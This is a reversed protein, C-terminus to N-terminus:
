RVHGRLDKHVDGKGGLIFAAKLAFVPVLGVVTDRVFQISRNRTTTVRAIRRGQRVISGSRRSRVREYRRLAQSV